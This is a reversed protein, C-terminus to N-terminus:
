FLDLQIDYNRWLCEVREDEAQLEGGRLGMARTRGKCDVTVKFTERAWGLGDYIPSPYGSILCKAKLTKLTAVLEVHEDETMDYEYFTVGDRQSPVYPPDLYFFTDSGDYYDLCKRWDLQEIIVGRLRDRCEPLREINNEWIVAENKVRSFGFAKGFAGGFSQRALVFWRAAKEVSSEMGAWIERSENYYSRSYPVCSIFDCFAAFKEPDQLTRYFSVLGDDLDNYVEVYRACIKRPKGFLLTGAGGFVEVYCKHEPIRALLRDLM